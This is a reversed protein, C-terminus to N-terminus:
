AWSSRKPRSKIWAGLTLGLLVLAGGTLLWKLVVNRDLERVRSTLETVQKQLAENSAKLQKNEEYNAISTASIRRVEALEAQLKETQKSLDTVRGESQTRAGRTEQYTDRLTKLQQELSEVRRNAATLRDRAAPENSLFQTPVWGETGNPTRVQTFGAAADESLVELAMGSPLGAHLIKHSKSPGSRLPVTLQDSIYVTVASAPVCLISSAVLLLGLVLKRM